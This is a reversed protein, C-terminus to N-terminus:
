PMMMMMPPPSKKSTDMQVEAPPQAGTLSKLFDVLDGIEEDSLKLPMIKPDKTGSFTGPAGGGNNYFRVVDELTKVAGNHFYPATEAINLLGMTKFQGLLKMKENPDAEIADLPDLKQKGAAQDDSFAGRGSFPNTRVVTLDQSRGGDTMPAMGVAQPVGLNHFKNDALIGSAHCENCAAKGVFLRLGRKQRPTMAALDGNYAYKEFPSTGRNVLKREFAEFAKGCNAMIQNIAKQDPMAMMEWPGDPDTMAPKPKGAMPFRKADASAPDLAPDLPGFVAEYEDKYKRYLVHAFFLRTTAVDTGAEPANAGQMSMSDMRGGWTFWDYWGVNMLSPSSRATFATGHSVGDTTRSDIFFRKPDHCTVCAVKGVMGMPGSPGAVRIASSFEPDYWIMQGLKAANADFALKNSPNAHQPESPPALAQIESWEEATFGDHDDSFGSDGCGAGAMVLAAALTGGPVLRSFVM